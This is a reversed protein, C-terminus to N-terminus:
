QLKTIHQANNKLDNTKWLQMIIIIIISSKNFVAVGSIYAVPLISSCQISLILPFFIYVDNIIIFFYIITIYFFSIYKFVRSHVARSEKEM